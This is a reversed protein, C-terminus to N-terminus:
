PPDRHYLSCYRYHYFPIDAPLPLLTTIYQHYKTVEEQLTKIMTERKGTTDETTEGKLLKIRDALTRVSRWKIGELAAAISLGYLLVECVPHIMGAPVGELVGFSGEVAVSPMSCGFITSLATIAVINVTAVTTTPSADNTTIVVPTSPISPVNQRLPTRISRAPAFSVTQIVFTLVVLLM